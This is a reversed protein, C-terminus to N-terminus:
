PDDLAYHNDVSVDSCYRRTLPSELSPTARNAAHDSLNM